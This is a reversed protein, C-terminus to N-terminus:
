RRFIKSSLIAKFGYVKDGGKERRFKEASKVDKFALIGYRMPTTVKVGSLYAAVRGEVWEGTLYDKVYIAAIREKDRHVEYFVFLDGLDCFYKVKGDDLFMESAFRIGEGQIYMGCEACSTKEPVAVPAPTKKAHVAVPMAISLALLTIQFAKLM